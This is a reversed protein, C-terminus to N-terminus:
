YEKKSIQDSNTSNLSLRDKSITMNVNKSISSVSKGTFVSIVVMLFIIVNASLRKMYGTLIIFFGTGTKM